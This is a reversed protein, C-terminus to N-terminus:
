AGRPVKVSLNVSDPVKDSVKVQKNSWPLGWQTVNIGSDSFSDLVRYMVKPVIWFLVIDSNRPNQVPTTSMIVYDHGSQRSIEEVAANAYRVLVSSSKLNTKTSAKLKRKTEKQDKEIQEISAYQNEIDKLLPQIVSRVTEILAKQRKFAKNLLKDFDFSNREAPTTLELQQKVFRDIESKSTYNLSQAITSYIEKIKKKANRKQQSLKKGDLGSEAADEAFLNEADEQAASKSFMLLNQKEFVIGIDSTNGEFGIPTYDIKLKKLFAVSGVRGALRAIVPVESIQFSDPRRLKSPLKREYKKYRRIADRTNLFDHRSSDEEGVESEDRASRMDELYKSVKTKFINKVSVLNTAKDEVDTHITQLTNIIYKAIKRIPYESRTTASVKVYNRLDEIVSDVTSLFQGRNKLSNTSVQLLLAELSTVTNKYAAKAADLKKDNSSTEIM